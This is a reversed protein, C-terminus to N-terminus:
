VELGLRRRVDSSSSSPENRALVAAAHRIDEQDQLWGALVHRAIEPKSHGSENALRELEHDIESDIVITITTSETM